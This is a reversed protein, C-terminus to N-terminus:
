YNQKGQTDIANSYAGPMNLRGIKSDIDEVKEILHGFGYLSLSALWSFLCGIVIVLVGSVVSGSRYYSGYRGGISMISIGAVISGIMGLITIAVALKKIKGGINSFM